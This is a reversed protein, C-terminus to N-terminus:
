GPQLDGRGCCSATSSRQLSPMAMSRCCMRSMNTRGCSSWAARTGISAACPRLHGPREQPRRLVDERLRAPRLAREAAAPAGADGRHRTRSASAPVGRPCRDGRRYRRGRAHIEQGPVRASARSFRVARSRALKARRSRRRRCLRLHRFRGDAKVVHGLHVPKADALRIVPASHFRTGISSARPWISTTASAPSSRRATTRRRERPIAATGSSIARPRRGADAGAATAAQRLRADRGMRPRLRDAGQRDAQREASYTHLLQPACRGRLVSALKWGLNFADQMSVNMGQGAKPSHTHCADGAIFVRPLRTAITKRGARRRVQRDAAPRDRLGVM